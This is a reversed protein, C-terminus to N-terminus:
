GQAEFESPRTEAGPRSAQSENAPLPSPRTSSILVSTAPGAFSTSPPSPRCRTSSHGCPTSTSATDRASSRSSTMALTTSGITTAFSSSCIPTRVPGTVASGWDILVPPRGPDVLLNRLALDGHSLGFEFSHCRLSEFIGRVRSQEARDYVGLALLPDADDLSDVNYDLHARWAAPLDRGFRSFLAEPADALPITNITRAYKGLARWLGVSRVTEGNAGAVSRQVSYAVANVVGVGVIDATPIAHERAQGACWAEM